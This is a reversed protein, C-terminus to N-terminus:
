IGEPHAPRTRTIENTRHSASEHSLGEQSSLIERVRQCTLNQYTRDNVMMVPARDCAGLCQAPLLTFKQDSTTQGWDIGLEEKISKRIDEYGMIYCCVSDCLRIVFRGVPKRFILNYFTAIGDLETSSMGLYQAVHILAEDSVYGRHKQVIMLADLGANRRHPFKAIEEDIEKYEYESLM